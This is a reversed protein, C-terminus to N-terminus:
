INNKILTCIEPYLNEPIILPEGNEDYVWPKKPISKKPTKENTEEKNVNKPSNEEVEETNNTKIMKLIAQRKMETTGLPAIMDFVELQKDKNINKSLVLAIEMSLKSEGKGDLKDFLSNDLNEYLYLYDKITNSSYGTLKVVNNLNGKCLVNLKNFMFCKDQQSMKNRQINETFSLLEAQEEKIDDIVKCIISNMNLKQLALFRRQGALIEYLGNSNKKVTLPNILGNVKISDVLNDINTEDEPTELIKRVNHKSLFLDKLKIETFM